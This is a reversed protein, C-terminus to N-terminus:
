EHQLRIWRKSKFEFRPLSGAAAVKVEARLHLADRLERAIRAALAAGNAGAAPEVTITIQAMPGRADVEVRYEAVETHARVLEDIASPFVNVGRVLVMDDCRALIGGVLAMEARGCACTRRPGMEVLDGTRYRLLPSGLRGLTTLVLEGREGPGVPALSQPDIVEALYSREIVHLVGPQAPCEITVPGVETMGHHDFVRAGNWADSMRKRMVPVSGGPEGAVIITTIASATLDVHHEAAVHALHMAYTPTCCLVTAGTDLMMRLRAMSSLGGGPLCLCGIQTAAEFATWFGLFPGFSFAFMIRASADVKAARFVEKWNDLMWQWSEPTDLWRMPAATTGSTQHFRTYRELPYTLNSGFPPHALQDAVIQAKSTLPMARRFAEISVGEHLLGASKLLPAYYRNGDRLAHLLANLKGHQDAEIAAPADTM